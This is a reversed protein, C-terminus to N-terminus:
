LGNVEAARFSPVTPLPAVIMMEEGTATGGEARIRAQAM